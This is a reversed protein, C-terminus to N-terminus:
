NAEALQIILRSAVDLFPFPSSVDKEEVARGDGVFTEVVNKGDDVGANQMGIMSAGFNGIGQRGTVTKGSSVTETETGDQADKGEVAEPAFDRSATSSSKGRNAATGSTARSGTRSRTATKPRRQSQRRKLADWNGGESPRGSAYSEHEPRNRDRDSESDSEETNRNRDRDTDSDYATDDRAGAEDGTEEIPQDPDASRQFANLDDVGEVYEHEGVTRVLKRVLREYGACKFDVVYMEQDKNGLAYLQITLYVNASDDTHVAEPHFQGRGGQVSTLSGSSSNHSSPNGIPIATSGDAALSRTSPGDKASKGLSEDSGSAGRNRTTSSRRREPSQTASDDTLDVRSSNASTPHTSGPPLMGGKRFRANIIYPDAPIKYGWDNSPGYKKRKRRGRPSSSSTSSSGRRAQGDEASSDGDSEDSSGSISAANRAEENGEGFDGPARYEPVQWDGGMAELARYIALMAENPPNRSRIGFQWKTAKAKKKEAPASTMSDPKNDRDNNRDVNIQAKSHPNLRRKRVERSPEDEQTDDNKPEPAKPQGAMYLKHYDPLSSPLVAIRGGPSRAQLKSNIESSLRHSHPRQEHQDRHGHSSKRPLDMKETINAIPSQPANTPSQAFFPQLAPEETM